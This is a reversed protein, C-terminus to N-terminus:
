AGPRIRLEPVGAAVRRARLWAVRGGGALSRLPNWGTTAVCLGAFVFFLLLTGGATGFGAALVSGLTGGALGASPVPAEGALLLRILTPLAIMVGAVLASWRVARDTEVWGFAVGAWIGPLIPLLFAAIGLLVWLGGALVRGVVGVVNGAPFFREGAGLAAPPLLSLATLLALALLALGWLERRQRDDISLPM